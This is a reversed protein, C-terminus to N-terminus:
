ELDEDSALVHATTYGYEWDSEQLLVILDGAQEPDKFRVAVEGYFDPNVNAFPDAISPDGLGDALEQLVALGKDGTLLIANEETGMMKSASLEPAAKLDLELTVSLRDPASPYGVEADFTVLRPGEDQPDLGVLFAGGETGLPEGFWDDTQQDLFMVGMGWCPQWGKTQSCRTSDDPLEINLPLWSTRVLDWQSTDPFLEEVRNRVINVQNMSPTTELDEAFSFNAFHLAVEKERISWDGLEANPDSRFQMAIAGAVVLALILLIAIMLDRRNRPETPGVPDNSGPGKDVPSTLVEQEVQLEM